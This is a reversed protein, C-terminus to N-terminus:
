GAVERYPWEVVWTAQGELRVLVERDAVVFTLGNLRPEDTSSVSLVTPRALMADLATVDDPDTLVARLAGSRSTAARLTVDPDPRGIVEHVITRPSRSHEYAVVLVPTVSTTGDTITTSM